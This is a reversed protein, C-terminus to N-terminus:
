YSCIHNERRRFFQLAQIDTTVVNLDPSAGFRSRRRRLFPLNRMILRSTQQKKGRSFRSLGSIVLIRGSDQWRNTRVCSILVHRVRHSSARRRRVEEFSQTTTKVKANRALVKNDKDQGIFHRNTKFIRFFEEQQKPPAHRLHSIESSPIQVLAWFNLSHFSFSGETKYSFVYIQFFGM